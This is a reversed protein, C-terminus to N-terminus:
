MVVLSFGGGDCNSFLKKGCHSLLGVVCSLLSVGAVVLSSDGFSLSLPASGDCIFLPDGSCSSHLGMGCSFTAEQM